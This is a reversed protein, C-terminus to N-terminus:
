ALKVGGLFVELKGPDLFMYDFSISTSPSFDRDTSIAIPEGTMSTMALVSDNADLPSDQIACVASQDVSSDEINYGLGSATQFGHREFSDYLTPMYLLDQPNVLLRFTDMEAVYAILSSATSQKRDAWKWWEISGEMNIQIPNGDTNDGNRWTDRVAFWQDGPGGDRYGYALVTHYAIGKGDIALTLLVPRQASVESKLLNFNAGFSTGTAARLGQRSAWAELGAPLDLTESDGNKLSSGRSTKLFDALSDDKHHALKPDATSGPEQPGKSHDWWDLHHGESAILQNVILNEGSGKSYGNDLWTYIDKPNPRQPPPTNGDNLPAFTATDAVLNFGQRDWYGMLMGVSTPECGYNWTYEPVGGIIHSPVTSPPEQQEVKINDLWMTHGNGPLGAGIVMSSIPATVGRKVSEALKSDVYFNTYTAGVEASLTHWGVSRGVAGPADLTYYQGAVGSTLLRGQFYHENYTDAISGGPPTVGMGVVARVSGVNYSGGTYSRMDALHNAYYWSPDSGGSQLYLDFSFRIPANDAAVLPRNLDRYYRNTGGAGSNGVMRVSHSSDRGFTPDFYYAPDGDKTWSADFNTQNSYGEFGDSFSYSAYAASACCVLFGTVFTLFRGTGM